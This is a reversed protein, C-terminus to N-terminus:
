RWRDEDVVRAGPYPGRGDPRMEAHASPGASRPLRRGRDLHVPALRVLVNYTVLAIAFHMVVLVAVARPPQGKALLWVDPLLLVVTVIVALRLFLWRPSSTVRTVVPWAMGAIVVGIVTLKAYSSFQFHVYHKTSPFLATGVAVLLADFLLSGVISLVTALTVRRLPPQGHTPVLDIRALRFSRDVVTSSSLPVSM